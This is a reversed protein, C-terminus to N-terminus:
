VCVITDLSGSVREFAEIGCRWRDERGLAQAAACWALCRSDASM